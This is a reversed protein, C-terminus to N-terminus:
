QDSNGSAYGQPSAEPLEATVVTRVDRKVLKRQNKEERKKMKSLERQRKEFSYNQKAMGCWLYSQLAVM